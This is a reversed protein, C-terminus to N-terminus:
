IFGNIDAYSDLNSSGNSVNSGQRELNIGLKNLASTFSDPANSATSMSKSVQQFTGGMAGMNAGVSNIHGPLGKLGAVTGLGAATKNLNARVNSFPTGLGLANLTSDLAGLTGSMGAVSGAIASVPATIQNLGKGLDSLGSGFTVFNSTLNNLTSKFDGATDEGDLGFISLPNGSKDSLGRTCSGISRSLSGSMDGGFQSLEPGIDHPNGWDRLANEYADVGHPAERWKNLEANEFEFRKNIDLAKLKIPTVKDEIWYKYNLTVNLRVVDHNTSDFQIDSIMKPFCEHLTVSKIIDDNRSLMCLTVDKTYNGYYGSTRSERDFVKNTWDSFYTFASGTNSMLISLQIPPYTIGYASETIEGFTRVETTMITLGPLNAQEVLLDIDNGYDSPLTISFHAGTALGESRVRSLFEKFLM